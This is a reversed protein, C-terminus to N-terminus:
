VNEQAEITKEVAIHGSHIEDTVKREAVSVEPFKNEVVV